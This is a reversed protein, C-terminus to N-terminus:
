RISRMVVVKRLQLPENYGPLYPWHIMTRFTYRVEVTVRWLGNGEDVAVPPPVQLEANDYWGNTEMEEEVATRVGTEWATQSAPTVRHSSAFAAGERAANVVAIYTHAFRGFDICLLALTLLLPSLVAFELTASGKRKRFRQGDFQKRRAM